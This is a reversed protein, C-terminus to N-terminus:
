FSSAISVTAKIETQGEKPPLNFGKPNIFWTYNLDLEVTM